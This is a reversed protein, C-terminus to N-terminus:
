SFQLPSVSAPYRKARPKAMVAVGQVGEIAEAGPVLNSAANPADNLMDGYTDSLPSPEPNDDAEPAIIRERIVESQVRLRRGDASMSLIQSSSTAPEYFGGQRTAKKAKKNARSSTSMLLSTSSLRAPIHCPRLYGLPSYSHLPFASSLFLYVRIYDRPIPMSALADMRNCVNVVSRTSM